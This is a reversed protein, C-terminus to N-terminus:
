RSLLGEFRPDSRISAFDEDDRIAELDAFGADISQSLYDIAEDTNGALAACAAANYFATPKWVPSQAVRVWRAKADDFRGVYYYCNALQAHVMPQNPNIEVAREFLPVAEAWQEANYAATAQILFQQDARWPATEAFADGVPGTLYEAIFDLTDQVADRAYENDDFVDFGHHAGALNDFEVPAGAQVAKTFYRVAFFNMDPPDLGAMKIQFPMDTRVPLDTSDHGFAGYYVVACRINERNSELIIPAVVATNSSCSWVCMNQTDIGFESGNEDLFDLLDRVDEDTKGFRADHSIAAFGLTTVLRPWDTYQGWEKVPAAGNTPDGAGNAFVVVPLLEGPRHDPPIYLDLALTREDTQKFPINTRVVANEGGPIELVVRQATPQAAAPLTAAAVALVSLTQTLVRM